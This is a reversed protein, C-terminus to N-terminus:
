VKDSFEELKEQESEISRIIEEQVDKLLDLYIYRKQLDTITKEKIEGAYIEAMQAVIEEPELYSLMFQLNGKAQNLAQQYSSFRDPNEGTTKPSKLKRRLVM